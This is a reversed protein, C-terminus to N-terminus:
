SGTRVLQRILESEVSDLEQAVAALTSRRREAPMPGAADTALALDALTREARDVFASVTPDGTRRTRLERVAARVADIRAKIRGTPGRYDAVKAVDVGLKDARRRDAFNRVGDAAKMAAPAVLPVIVKGAALLRKTKKPDSLTRAVRTAAKAGRAGVQKAAGSAVLAGIRRAASNGAM